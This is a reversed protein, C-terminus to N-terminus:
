KRIIKLKLRCRKWLQRCPCTEGNFTSPKTNRPLPHDPHKRGLSAKKKRERRKEAKVKPTDDVMKMKHRINSVRNAEARRVSSTQSTVVTTGNPLRWVNHRKTRVLVAGLKRLLKMSRKM